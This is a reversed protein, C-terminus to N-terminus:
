QRSKPAHLRTDLVRGEPSYLTARDKNNNWVPGDSQLYIKIQEELDLQNDGTGSILMMTFGVPLTVEPLRWTDGGIDILRYGDINVPHEGVNCVRLYEGQPNDVDSGRANAHFSTIHLEGQYRDDSWIGLRNAQAHKQAALFPGMDVEGVPPILFLHGYGAKLLEESLRKGDPTTVGAILRGYGDRTVLGYELTVTKNLILKNALDRAEIGFDEAPKLEPTNVWRLRVRDGTDLTFTDGDYVSVVRAQQPVPKDTAPEAAVAAAVLLLTPSPVM